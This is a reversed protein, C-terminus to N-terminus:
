ARTIAVVGAEDDRKIGFGAWVNASVVPGMYLADGNGTGNNEFMNVASESRVVSGKHYAIAVDEGALTAVLPREYVNLNGVRTVNLGEVVSQGFGNYSAKLVREDAMLEYYMETPLALFRDAKSVKDLDLQKSIAIVDDFTFAATKQAIRKAASPLISQLATDGMKEALTAYFDTMVSRAKDYAIQGTEIEPLKVAGTDYLHTRITRDGDVRGVAVLPFTTTDIGITPSNGAQPIHIYQGQVFASYDTFTKLFASDSHLKEQLDKVWVEIPLAM